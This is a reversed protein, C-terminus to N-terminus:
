KRPTEFGGATDSSAIKSSSPLRTQNTRWLTIQQLHAVQSARDFAGKRVEYRIRVVLLREIVDLEVHCLRSVVLIHQYVCKLHLVLHIRDSNQIGPGLGQFRFKLFVVDAPCLGVVSAFPLPAIGIEM